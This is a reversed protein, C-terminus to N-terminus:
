REFLILTSPSSYGTLSVVLEPRGAGDLDAFAIGSVDGLSSQYRIQGASDTYASVALGTSQLEFSGPQESRNFMANLSSYGGFMLDLGGTGDFDAAAAANSRIGPLVRAAAFRPDGAAETVNPLLWANADSRHAVVIEQRGDADVDAIVLESPGTGTERDVRDAFAPVLEGIATANIFLALQGYTESAVVMDTRGDDDLDGAAIASPQPPATFAWGAGFSLDGAAPSDNMFVVLTDGNWNQAIAALDPRQDGNLDAIVLDAPSSVDLYTPEGFAVSGGAATVNPLVVLHNDAPAATVVDADGDGDLDAIALARAGSGAEFQTVEFTFDLAASSRNALVAVSSAGSDTVAADLRGDGDLDAIAVGSAYDGTDVLIGEEYPIGDSRVDITVTATLGALSYTFSDRGHYGAYPQYQVGYSFDVYVSGHQAPTVTLYISANDDNALMQPALNQMPADEDVTITDDRLIPDEVVDDDGPPDYDDGYLSCASLLLCLVTWKGM